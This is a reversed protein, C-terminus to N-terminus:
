KPAFRDKLNIIHTKDMNTIIYKRFRYPIKKIVDISTRKLICNVEALAIRYEQTM